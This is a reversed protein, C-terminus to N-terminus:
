EQPVGPLGARLPRLELRRLIWIAVLLFILALLSFPLGGRHHLNGHIYSEDVYSSLWSITAIRIGNKFIAIPVALLTLWVQGWGTRLLTHGALLGTILLAFASRIGSCEAAVEIELGPLSFRFGDRFVPVGALRLLVYTVDASGKQLVSNVGDLLHAPIPIIFVLLGFAFLAARFAPTGYVGIFGGTWVVLIALVMLWLGGSGAVPLATAYAITGLLLVPMGVGPCRRSNAFVQKRGFFVLCVWVLPMVAIHSYRFDRISLVGLAYLPSHFALVVLGTFALFVCHRASTKDLM